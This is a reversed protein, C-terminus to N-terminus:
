HYRQLLVYMSVSKTDANLGAQKYILISILFSSSSVPNISALPKESGVKNITSYEDPYKSKIDYEIIQKQISKASM